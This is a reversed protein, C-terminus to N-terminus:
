IDNWEGSFKKWIHEILDNILATHINRERIRARNDMYTPLRSPQAAFTNTHQTRANSSSPMNTPLNDLSVLGEDNNHEIGQERNDEVIMNHMVICAMMIKGLVQKDWALSPYKVIAWRAQLVGFAREVDKRAGEQRQAFLKHKAIQPATISQVFVAWKPYIGDPTGFFAHWIWLDRSAVAELILTAKKNRGQFMGRWARPCNKWEWHMCDISGMMGPFGRSEGEALLQTVDQTNPRRLYEPGFITTVGEVFQLLCERGTTDAVKLYEDLIDPTVGFALIRIACTCKQQVSLGMRGVADRKQHFFTNHASLANMIGEFVCKRMRFRRRFERQGYTPSDIFYDCMLRKHADDRDRHLYRRRQIPREITQTLLQPLTSIISNEVARREERRADVDENFKVFEDVESQFEDIYSDSSTSSASM